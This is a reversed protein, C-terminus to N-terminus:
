GVFHRHVFRHFQEGREVRLRHVPVRQQFTQLKPFLLIDTVRREGASLFLPERDGERQDVIRLEEEEVFRGGAEVRLRAEFNAIEHLFEAGFIARDHHRRM